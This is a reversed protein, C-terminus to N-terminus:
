KAIDKITEKAKNVEKDLDGATASKVAAQTQQVGSDILKAVGSVGITALTFGFVTGILFKTM